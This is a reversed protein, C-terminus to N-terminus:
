GCTKVVLFMKSISVAIKAHSLKTIVQTNEM